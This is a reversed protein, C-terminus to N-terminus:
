KSQFVKRIQEFVKHPDELYAEEVQIGDGDHYGSYYWDAGEIIQLVDWYQQRPDNHPLAIWDRESLVGPETPVDLKRLSFSDIRDVVYNCKLEKEEKETAHRKVGLAGTRRDFVLWEQTM